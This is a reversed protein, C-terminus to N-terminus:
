FPALLYLVFQSKRVRSASLYAPNKTQSEHFRFSTVSLGLSGTLAAPSIAGIFSPELSGPVSPITVHVDRM